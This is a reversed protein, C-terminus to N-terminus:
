RATYDFWNLDAPNVCKSGNGTAYMAIFVGTWTGALESGLFQTKAEAICKTTNGTGAPGYYFKYTSADSEIALVVPGEAVPERAVEVSIDGVTKRVVICREEEQRLTLALDYHYQHTLFATLGSEENEGTPAFELLAACRMDFHQQRRGVFAPADVDHLSADQGWLRLYGPREELSWSGERPNRLFSWCLRLEDQDFDDRAPEEPWPHLPLTPVKMDLQVIQDDNVVPWGDEWTVPLLFTERGLHSMADYSHHRTGLFLIWWSGDHAQILDAHGTSRVAHGWGKHQSLIPNHPCPKFPGWPSPSRGITEMHLARTGGEAAMLYYTGDIKYLHPGEIDDSVMGQTVERLETLLKGTKIDIEAQVIAHSGWPGRRTYYVKGDDDFLLSPDFIGEDVWIPDSWPSAPDTATVYFNGGGNVNTTIMYFTGDHYRLTPAYIGGMVPMRDLNLQSKRTLCQGIQRWNVLDRSHYVPVGPFYEFSSTVLYYDEGVRCASPDPNFGPIIPNKYGHPNL